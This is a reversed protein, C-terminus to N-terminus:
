SIAMRRRMSGASPRIEVVPEAPDAPEAPETTRNALVALAHDLDAQTMRWVRGVKRATFRGSAIQRKVWREPEIMSDGCLAAAVEALSYTTWNVATM